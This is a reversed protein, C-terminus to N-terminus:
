YKAGSLATRERVAQEGVRCGEPVAQCRTWTSRRVGTIHATGHSQSRVRYWRDAKSLGTLNLVPQSGFGSRFHVGGAAVHWMGADNMQLNNLRCFSLATFYTKQEIKWPKKPVGLLLFPVKVICTVHCLVAPRNHWVPSTLTWFPYSGSHFTVTSHENFFNHM